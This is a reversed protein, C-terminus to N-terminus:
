KIKEILIKQKNDIEEFPCLDIKNLAIVVPKDKFLPKL